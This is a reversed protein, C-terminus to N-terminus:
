RWHRGGGGRWGGGWGWGHPGVPVVVTFGPDWWYGPPYYAPPYYYGPAAYYGQPAVVNPPLYNPGNDGQPANYGSGKPVPRLQQFSVDAIWLSGTGGESNIRLDFTPGADPPASLRLELLQWDYTGEPFRERVAWNPGGGFWVTGVDEGKAWLRVLYDSGPKIGRVEQSLSGYANEMVPGSDRFRMTRHGFHTTSDSLTITAHSGGDTQWKWSAPFHDGAGFWGDSILNPGLAMRPADAAARTLPLCLAAAVLLTVGISTTWRSAEYHIRNFM